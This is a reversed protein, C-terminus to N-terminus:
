GGSQSHDGGRDGARPRDAELLMLGAGSAQFLEQAAAVVQQLGV